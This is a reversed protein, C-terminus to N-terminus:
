INKFQHARIKVQSVKQILQDDERYVKCSKANMIHLDIEDLNVGEQQAIKNKLDVLHIQNGHFTVVRKKTDAQFKYHIAGSM